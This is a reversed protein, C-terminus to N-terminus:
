AKEAKRKETIEKRAADLETQYKTVQAAWGKPLKVGWETALEAISAGLKEVVKKEGYSGSDSHRDLMGMMVLRRAQSLGETKKAKKLEKILNSESVGEPYDAGFEDNLKLMLELNTVGELAGAFIRSAEEWALRSKFENGLRAWIRELEYDVAPEKKAPSATKAKKEEKKRRQEALDGVVVAKVNRGLGEFNQYKDKAPMLRLDAHRDTFLKEDKDNYNSLDIYVGERKEYLPINLEASVDEAHQIKWAADKRTACTKFGCYHDGDLVAHLPCSLCAPPNMLIRVKDLADPSFGPYIEDSVSMGALVTQALSEFQGDLDVKQEEPVDEFVLEEIDKKNIAQLHKVPFPNAKVWGDDLDLHFSEGTMADRIAEIAGMNHEQMSDLVEAVGDAGSLKEVMLLARAETAKIEGSRVKEKAAEPLALLRVSGRITSAAIGFFEAAETSNKGFTTMYTSLAEAQEIPNLDRRKINESVALEFMQLDSLERVICRMQEYREKGQSALYLFAALRTHGFALEYAEELAEDELARRVTPIQLLGDFDETANREINEALEFVAEESEAKRPQFPNPWLREIPILIEENM